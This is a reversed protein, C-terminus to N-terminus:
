GLCPFTARKLCPHATVTPTAVEVGRIQPTTPSESPEVPSAAAERATVVSDSYDFATAGGLVVLASAALVVPLARPSRRRGNTTANSSM